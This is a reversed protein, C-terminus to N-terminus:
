RFHRLPIYRLHEVKQSSVGSRLAEELIVDLEMLLNIRVQNVPEVLRKDDKRLALLSPYDQKETGDRQVHYSWTGGASCVVTLIIQEREHQLKLSACLPMGDEHFVIPVSHYDIIQYYAESGDATKDHLFGPLSVVRGSYFAQFLHALVKRRVSEVIKKSCVIQFAREIASM